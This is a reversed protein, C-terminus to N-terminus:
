DPSSGIQPEKKEQEDQEGLNFWRPNLDRAAIIWAASDTAPIDNIFEEVTPINGSTCAVLSPYVNTELYRQAKDKTENAGGLWNEDAQAILLSRNVDMLNSAQSVTLEEGCLVVKKTQLEYPM